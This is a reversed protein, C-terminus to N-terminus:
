EGVTGAIVSGHVGWNVGLGFMTWGIFLMGVAAGLFIWRLGERGPVPSKLLKEKGKVLDVEDEISTKVDKDTIGRLKALREVEEPLIRPPVQSLRAAPLSDTSSVFLLAGSVLVSVFAYILWLTVANDLSDSPTDDQLKGAATTITVISAQVVSEVHIRTWYTRRTFYITRVYKQYCIGYRVM